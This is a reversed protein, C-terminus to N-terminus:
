RSVVTATDLRIPPTQSGSIHLSRIFQGKAAAPRAKVIADVLTRANDRLHDTEFSMKGISAHIIGTKDVRFEVKGAKLEQVAQRINFTVTGVKPNPMLGRPGLVRGLKGVDRMMDPTAVAADFDLFGGKVKEVLDEGGWIDAGAEEAERQKEGKAFVAVRVTRGTGHPLSVTGRVQQDAHRPDVNLRVDLDVGEDFKVHSIQKLLPLAEDVPYPRGDVLKAKETYKKGRRAM